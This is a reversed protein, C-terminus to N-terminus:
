GRTDVGLRLRQWLSGFANGDADTRDDTRPGAGGPRENGRQDGGLWSRSRGDGADHNLNAGGADQRQAGTDGTGPSSNGGQGGASGNASSNAAALASVHTPALSVGLREVLLGRAELSTRLGDLSQTLLRHAEANAVEMDVRVTGQQLEMQIRMAGLSDPMLRLTLTGGRQALSASLGRSVLSELQTMEASRAIGTAGHGASAAGEGPGAARDAGSTGMLRAVAGNDAAGTPSASVPTAASAGQAPAPAGLAPKAPEQPPQVAATAEAGARVELSNGSTDRRRPEGTADGPAPTTAGPAAGQAAHSPATAVPADPSLATGQAPKLEVLSSDSAGSDSAGLGGLASSSQRPTAATTRGKGVAVPEAATSTKAASGGSKAASVSVSVAPTDGETGTDGAATKKAEDTSAPKPEHTPAEGQGSPSDANGSQKGNLRDVASEPPADSASSADANPKEVGAGEREAGDGAKRRPEPHQERTAAREERKPALDAKESQEFKRSLSSAFDGDGEGKSSRAKAPASVGGIAGRDAEPRQARHNQPTQLLANLPTQIPM